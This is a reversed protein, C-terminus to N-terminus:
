RRKPTTPPSTRVTRKGCFSWCTATGPYLACLTQPVMTWAPMSALVAEFRGDQSADEPLDLGKRTIGRLGKAWEPVGLGRRIADLTNYGSRRHEERWYAILLPKLAPVAAFSREPLSGYPTALDHVVHMAYRALARVTLDLVVPDEGAIGDRVFANATADSVGSDLIGRDKFSTYEAVSGASAGAVIGIVLILGLTSRM